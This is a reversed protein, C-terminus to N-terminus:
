ASQKYNKSSNTIMGGKVDTATSKGTSGCIFLNYDSNLIYICVFNPLTKGSVSTPTYVGEVYTLAKSLSSKYLDSLPINFISNSCVFAM